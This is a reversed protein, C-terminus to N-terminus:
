GQVLGRVIAVVGGAVVVTLVVTRVRAAPVRRAISRGVVLGALVAAVIGVALLGPPRVPGLSAVAVANLVLFYLQLTPRFEEPPWGANLGYMAVSPGSLGAVVNMTASVAGAGAAGGPGRVFRLTRGSLLLLASAITVVGAGVLLVRDSLRHAAWVALPTAVIGPVLLLLWDKWRVGRWSTVINTLTVAVSVMNLLRVGDRPGLVLVMVPSCVLSFGLGTVRNTVAGALVGTVLAAGGVATVADIAM